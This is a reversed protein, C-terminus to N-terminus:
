QQARYHRVCVEGNALVTGTSKRSGKKAVAGAAAATTRVGGNAVDPGDSGGMDVDANSDTDRGAAGGRKSKKTARPDNDSGSDEQQSTASGSRRRRSAPPASGPASSAATAKGATGASERSRKKGAKPPM